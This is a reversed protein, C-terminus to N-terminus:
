LPTMYDELGRVYSSSWNYMTTIEDSNTDFPNGRKRSHTNGRINEIIHELAEIEQPFKHRIITAKKQAYVRSKLLDKRDWYLISPCVISSSENDTDISSRYSSSTADDDDVIMSDNVEDFINRLDSTPLRLDSTPLQFRVRRPQSTGVYKPTVIMPTQKQFLEECNSDHGDHKSVMNGEPQQKCNVYHHYKIKANQDDAPDSTIQHYAMNTLQFSSNTEIFRMM